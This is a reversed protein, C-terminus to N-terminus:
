YHAEFARKRPRSNLKYRLKNPRWAEQKVIEVWNKEIEFLKITEWYVNEVICMYM